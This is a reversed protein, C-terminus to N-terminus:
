DWLKILGDWGCTVVKSQEIPHWECGICPGDKHCRLKRYVKTTKWDWFWLRGDGDGSMLFQGNPSFNVQCAYGANIHGTFRKKHPRVKAGSSYTVIQNDLSQACFYKGDPSETVAPMSHMTPDAIYKIPVPINYEWVLMKKDDSTTVFKDGQDVFTVTNVPGLHHDYTQVIDGTRCDFQVCKKNSCGMLVINNDKPYFDVCYPVKNNGMDIRCQGTEVDWLKCRRDLSSSMFCSGDNSFTVDNVAASHGQYTRLCRRKNYVDWIKIKSDYSGSLILHGTKPFLQIKRVGRTHGTYTHLCKKPIFVKKAKQEDADLEKLRPPADCWARGQYDVEVSGHFVSKVDEAAIGKSWPVAPGEGRTWKFAEARDMDEKTPETRVKVSDAADQRAKKQEETMTGADFDSKAELPAACAAWPGTEFDGDGEDMMKDHRAKIKAQIQTKNLRKRKRIPVVRPDNVSKDAENKLFLSKPPAMYGQYRSEQFQLDFAAGDVGCPVAVGSIVPKGDLGFLPTIRDPHSPGEEPLYLEAATPNHMLKDGPKLAIPKIHQGYISLQHATPIVSPATNVVSTMLQQRFAQHGMRVTATAPKVSTKKRTAEEEEDGSSAYSARLLDM